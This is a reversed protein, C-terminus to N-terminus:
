QVQRTAPDFRKSSWDEPIRNAEIFADIEQRHHLYYALAAYVQGLNLHPLRRQIEEPVLGENSLEAIARVPTATNAIVPEGHRVNPDSVIDAM